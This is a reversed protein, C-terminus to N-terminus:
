NFLNKFFDNGKAKPQQEEEMAKNAPQEAPVPQQQDSSSSQEPKTSKRIDLSPKQSTRSGTKLKSPILGISNNTNSAASLKRKQSRTLSRETQDASRLPVIM